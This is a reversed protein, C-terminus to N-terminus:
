RLPRPLAVHLHDGTGGHRLVRFGMMRFYLKSLGNHLGSRGRTRLDVAHVWGDPQEFHLSHEVPTLGMRRYDSPVRGIGTIVVDPDVLIITGLALRLSPHLDTYLDHIDPASANLSSLWGLCYFSFIAVAPLAMNRVIAIFRSRGTLRRWIRAGVAALVLSAILGGVVVSIWGHTAFIRHAFVSGRVLLFFPAM